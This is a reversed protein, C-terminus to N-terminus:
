GLLEAMDTCFDRDATEARGASRVFTWSVEEDNVYDYVLVVELYGADIFVLRGDPGYYKRAGPQIIRLTATGDGNDTSKLERDLGRLTATFTKGNDPNTYTTSGSTTAGGYIPGNPGRQNILVHWQQGGEFQLTILGNCDFEGSWSEEEFQHIIPKASATGAATALGVAVLGTAAILRRTFM